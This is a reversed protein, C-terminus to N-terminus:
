HKPPRDIVEPPPYTVITRTPTPLRSRLAHLVCYFDPFACTPEPPTELPEDPAVDPADGAAPSCAAAKKVARVIAAHRRLRHELYKLHTTLDRENVRLAGLVEIHMCASAFTTQLIVCSGGAASARCREDNAPPMVRCDVSVPQRVAEIAERVAALRATTVEVEQELEAKHWASSRGRFEARVLGLLPVADPEAACAARAGLVFDVTSPDVWRDVRPFTGLILQSEAICSSIEAKPADEPRRRGAPAVCYIATPALPQEEFRVHAGDTAPTRHLTRLGYQVDSWVLLTQPDNPRRAPALVARAETATPLRWGKGFAAACWEREIAKEVPWLTSVPLGRPVEALDDDLDPVGFALALCRPSIAQTVPETPRPYYRSPEPREGFYIPGAFVFSRGNAFGLLTDDWRPDPAAVPAVPAVPGQAPGCGLALLGGLLRRCFKKM